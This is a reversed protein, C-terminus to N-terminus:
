NILIQALTSCKQAKSLNNFTLVIFIIKGGGGGGGGNKTPILATVAYFNGDM